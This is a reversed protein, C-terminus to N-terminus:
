SAGEEETEPIFAVLIYVVTHNGYVGQATVQFSTNNFELHDTYIQSPDQTVQESVNQLQQKLSMDGVDEINQHLVYESSLGTQQEFASNMAVISSTEVQICLCAFGVLEVLNNMEHQRNVTVQPSSSMADQNTHVRELLNNINSCISQLAPFQYSNSIGKSSDKLAQNLQEDISEFPFVIMRYMFFFMLSGIILALALSQVILSTTQNNDVVLAGMNYIVVSYAIVDIADIKPNFAQIPIMAGITSSDIKEVIKQGKRRGSHIFSYTPYTHIKEIPAIIRGDSANIIMASKVGPRRQAFDTTLATQLGEALMTRNREALALAISEAHYMSEKEVSSKLIQTLPFASLISVLLIFGIAFFGVAWKFEVWEPIKYIGPTIVTKLYHSWWSQLKSSSAPPPQYLSQNEQQVVNGNSSSPQQLPAIPQQPIHTRIIDFVIDFLSVQDGMEIVEKKIKVGNVFTGNSSNKDSLTLKNDKIILEAHVKSIGPAQIHVACSSSRGINHTGESLPIQTGAKPGNLFRISWM